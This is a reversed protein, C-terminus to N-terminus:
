RRRARLTMDRSWECAPTSSLFDELKGCAEDAPQEVSVLRVGKPLGTSDFFNGPFCGLISQAIQRNLEPNAAPASLDSQLSLRLSTRFIDATSCPEGSGQSADEAFQALRRASHAFRQVPCAAALHGLLLDTWWESRRRVRNAALVQNFRLGGGSVLLALVRQRADLHSSWVNVLIPAAEDIGLAADCGCGVATWIRTLVEASLIEELVSRLRPLRDLSDTSALTKLAYMWNDLRYRTAAWYQLLGADALRERCRVRAPGCLAIIAALEVLSRPHM